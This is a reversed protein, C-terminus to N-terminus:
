PPMKKENQLIGQNIRMQHNYKRRNIEGITKSTKQNSYEIKLTYALKTKDNKKPLHLRSWGMEEM